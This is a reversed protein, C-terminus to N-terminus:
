EICFLTSPNFIEEIQLLRRLCQLPHTIITLHHETISNNIRDRLATTTIRQRTEMTHQTDVRKWKGRIDDDHKVILGKSAGCDVESSM